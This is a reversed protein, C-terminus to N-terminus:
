GKAGFPRVCRGNRVIEGERCTTTRNKRGGKPVPQTSAKAPAEEMGPPMTCQGLGADWITGPGCPSATPTLPTSPPGGVLYGGYGGAPAQGFDTFEPTSVGADYAVYGGDDAQEEMPMPACFAKIQDFIAGIPNSRIVFRSNFMIDTQALGARM